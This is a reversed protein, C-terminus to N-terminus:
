LQNSPDQQGLVTQPIRPAGAQVTPEYAAPQWTATSWQTPPPQAPQPTAPLAGGGGWVAAPSGQLPQAQPVPEVVPPVGFPAAVGPQPVGVPQAASTAGPAAPDSPDNLRYWVLWLVLQVLGTVLLLVGVAVSFQTYTYFNSLVLTLVNIDRFTVFALVLLFVTKKLWTGLPVEWVRKIIPVSQVVWIDSLALFAAAFLQVVSLFITAYNAALLPGFTFGWIACTLVLVALVLRAIRFVLEIITIQDPQLQVSPIAVM